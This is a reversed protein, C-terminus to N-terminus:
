KNDVGQNRRQKNLSDQAARLQMPNLIKREALALLLSNQLHHLFQGDSDPTIPHHYAIKGPIIRIKSAM